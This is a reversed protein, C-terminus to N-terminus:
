NFHFSKSLANVLYRAEALIYAPICRHNFDISM